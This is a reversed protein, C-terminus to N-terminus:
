KVESRQVAFNPTLFWFVV